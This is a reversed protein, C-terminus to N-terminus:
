LRREDEPVLRGGTAWLIETINDFTNGPFYESFYDRGATSSLGIAGALCVAASPEIFIGETGHILKQYPLLRRDDLTFEGDMLPQMAEYVLQSACGVALGDAATQGSLGLETIAICHEKSFAALMCPANVPEIFFCHVNEGFVAKLGFTIGGPAGGVGCPLHVFLPHESDVTVNAATLQEKLRLAAVAYGFFLDISREDDVFYSMPDTEAAARGRKVAYQYDNEYEIVTVGKSRLLEKKWQKADASMHVIVHYGIAAGIIGISLGLNGTSGVQISYRGFYERYKDLKEYGILEGNPNRTLIGANAALEETHKLVEYIGGRAKVSGAIPLESDLKIFLKGPRESPNDCPLALRLAKCEHLSSEIIGDITEPFLKRIFPAFRRLRADAEKIADIGYPFNKSHIGNTFPLEEINTNLYFVEHALKLEQLAAANSLCFAPSYTKEGTPKRATSKPKKPPKYNFKSQAEALHGGVILKIADSAAAAAKQLLQQEDNGPIGLVYSILDNKPKGIGIRIRLFNEHGLQEVISRMGNHTGASGNERIRIAGCPLDIDDYIVILHASPLKFWNMLQVAAFGSNNMFTEPKALIVKESNFRGEGYVSKFGSRNFAIGEREALLDLVMFGVNHRTKSYERGPNGLGIIIYM